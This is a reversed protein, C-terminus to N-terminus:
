AQFLVRCATRWDGYGLGWDGYTRVKYVMNDDDNYAMIGVPETQQRIFPRRRANTIFGYIAPTTGPADLEPNIRISFKGALDNTVGDAFVESVRVREAVGYYSPHVHVELNMADPDSAPFAPDGRDDKFTFFQSRMNRVAGAFTDAGPAAATGGTGNDSIDFVLDNDQNTTYIAGVDKHDTDFFNQTDYCGTADGTNIMSGITKHAKWRAKEGLNTIVDAVANLRNLRRFRGRIALGSSYEINKVTWSFEPVTSFKASAGEIPLPAAGLWPYTEQDADSTIDAILGDLLNPLSWYGGWFAAKATARLLNVSYIQSM